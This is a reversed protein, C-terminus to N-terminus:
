GAIISARVAAPQRAERDCRWCTARRWLQSWSQAAFFAAQVPTMAAPVTERRPHVAAARRNGGDREASAARDRALRARQPARARSGGPMQAPPRRSWSAPCCMCSHRLPPGRCGGPNPYSKRTCRCCGIAARAMNGPRSRRCNRCCDRPSPALSPRHASMNCRCRMPEPAARGRCSCRRCCRRCCSAQCPRYRRRLRM